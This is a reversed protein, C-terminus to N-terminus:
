EVGAATKIESMTLLPQFNLEVQSLGEAGGQERDIVAIATHIKAGGKRLDATSLKIQGGTTVVDEM